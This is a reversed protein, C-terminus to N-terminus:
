CLGREDLDIEELGLYHGLEHLYTTRVEQRYVPEDGEAFEWINTPFLIIQAPVDGGAEGSELRSQGVFLGLTDDLDLHRLDREPRPDYTIPLAAAEEQLDAPLSAIVARVEDQAVSLLYKWDASMDPPEIPVFASAGLRLYRLQFPPVAMSSVDTLSRAAIGTPQYGVPVPWRGM